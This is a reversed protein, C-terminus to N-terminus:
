AARHHKGLLRRCEAQWELLTREYDNYYDQQGREIFWLKLVELDRLTRDIQAEWMMVWDFDYERLRGTQDLAVIIM